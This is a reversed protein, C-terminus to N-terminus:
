VVRAAPEVAMASGGPASGPACPAASGGRGKGAGVRSSINPVSFGPATPEPGIARFPLNKERHTTVVEAHHGGLEARLDEPVFHAREGGRTRAEADTAVADSGGGAPSCGLLGRDWRTIWAKRTSGSVRFAKRKASSGPIVSM